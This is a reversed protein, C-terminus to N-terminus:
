THFLEQSEWRCTSCVWCHPCSFFLTVPSSGLVYKSEVWIDNTQQHKNPNQYKLIGAEYKPVLFCPKHTILSFLSMLSSLM